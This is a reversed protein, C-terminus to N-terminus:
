ISLLFTDKSDKKTGAARLVPLNGDMLLLLCSLLQLPLPGMNSRPSSSVPFANSQGADSHQQQVLLQFNGVM